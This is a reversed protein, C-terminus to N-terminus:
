LKSVSRTIGTAIATALLWGAATLGYGVWQTAATPTFADSQGFGVVPFLHDLTFFFPNFVTAKDDSIRAPPRLAFVTTGVAVLGALWFGARMPRYGYGVTADQVAGWVRAYWPLTAHRAREKALLVIRAESEHGLARYARALQEYPQPLYGDDDRGLWGTRQTAPLPTALREYHLGDLKLTAPWTASDDELVDISAHRLDVDGTIPTATRLSLHRVTAQWMDLAVDDPAAISTGRLVLSNINANSLRVQGRVVADKLSLTGALQLYPGIFAVRGPAALTAGVFFVDGAVQAGRLRVDGEFVAEHAMVASEVRSRSLSLAGGDPNSIRVGRLDLEGGIKAGDLTVRGAITSGALRLSGDIVANTGLLKPLRSGEITLHRTRLNGIKVVGRLACGSLRIRCPVEAYELDFDGTVLAGALRLAPVRETSEDADHGLLLACLVAARVTREAGWTDSNAPDDEDADGTRLDVTAGSRFADCVAQEAATLDTIHVFEGRGRQM